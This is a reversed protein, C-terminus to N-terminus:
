VIWAFRLYCKSSEFSQSRKDHKFSEPSLAEPPPEAPTWEERSAVLVPRTLVTITLPDLVADSLDGHLAAPDSIM